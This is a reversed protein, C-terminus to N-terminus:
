LIARRILNSTLELAIVVIVVAVIVLGANDYRFTKYYLDFVFGIGTGTLIGILTADRVNTEIMFLVWSIVATASLPIVAQAVLQGYTAGTARLAEVAGGSVEDISELFCRTLYGFSTLFLALYGTFESQKFSLLLLLAWAVTPINRFLSAVARVALPIPGGLGVSRSGIVALVLALVAATCSAAVSILVTSVLQSIITELKSLSAATPMFNSFMWVIGSPLDLLTAPLDFDLLTGIVGNLLLFGAAVLLILLTRRRFFGGARRLAEASGPAGAGASGPAEVDM